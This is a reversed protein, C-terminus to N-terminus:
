DIESTVRLRFPSLSERQYWHSIGVSTVLGGRDISMSLKPAKDFLLQSIWVVELLTRSKEVSESENEV